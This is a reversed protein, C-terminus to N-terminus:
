YDDSAGGGGSFGSDSDSSSSNYSDYSDWPTYSLSDNSSSFYGKRISSRRLVSRVVGIIIAVLCIFGIIFAVVIIIYINDKSKINEKDQSSVSYEGKTVAILADIGKNIGEYFENRKLHPSIKTQIIKKALVDPLVGELGYGVEIRIKRDGKSILLLIGNDKGKTGIKNYHFISNAVEEITEGNLSKLLVVVIQTSTSDYFGRLKANLIDLERPTLASTEDTVYETLKLPDGVYSRNEQAVIYGLM